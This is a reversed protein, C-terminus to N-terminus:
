HGQQQSLTCYCHVQVVAVPSMCHVAELFATYREEEAGVVPSTCYHGEPSKYHEGPGEPNKYHEGVVGV